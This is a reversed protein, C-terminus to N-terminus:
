SEELPKFIERFGDDPFVGYDDGSRWFWEGVSIPMDHRCGVSSMTVYARGDNGVYAQIGGVLEAVDRLNNGDYRLANFVDPQRLVFKM